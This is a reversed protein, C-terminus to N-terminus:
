RRTSGTRHRSAPAEATFDRDVLDAPRESGDDTIPTKVWSRGRRVGSLGMKRMLREVTCRAVMVLEVNNLHAWMKDAGYAVFNEDFVPKIIPRLEADRIARASPPRNKAAHYTSPAIGRLKAIPEIGWRLKGSRRDKHEDIFRIM